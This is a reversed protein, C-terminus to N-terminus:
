SNSQSSFLIPKLLQVWHLIGQIKVKRPLPTVSLYPCVVRVSTREKPVSFTLVRQNCPQSGKPSAENGEEFSRLQRPVVGGWQGRLTRLSHACNPLQTVVLQYLLNDGAFVRAVGVKHCFTVARGERRRIKTSPLVRLPPFSPQKLKNNITQRGWWTGRSYVGWSLSDPSSDTAYLVWCAAQCM